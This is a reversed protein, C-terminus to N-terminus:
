QREAIMTRTPAVCIVDLRRGTVNARTADIRAECKGSDDELEIVVIGNVNPIYMSGDFGVPFSREGVTVRTGAPVPTGDERLLRATISASREIALDVAVGGRGYPVVEVRSKTIHADLPVELPDISIANKEYARLGSVAARGSSDTRAVMMNDLYIPVNPLDPVRLIAFNQDIRPLAAFEGGVTGVAGSVQARTGVVGDREAVEAGVLMADGQWELSASSRGEAGHAAVIQYGLDHHRSRNRRLEASAYARGQGDRQFRLESSKSKGMPRTIGAFVSRDSDFLDHTAVVSMFMSGPLQRSYTGSVLRAEQAGDRVVAAASFSGFRRSSWGAHASVDWRDGSRPESGLQAFGAEMWRVDFGASVADGQFEVGLDVLGALGGQYESLATSLRATGLRGLTRAVSAGAASRDRAYEGHLEVTTTDSMGRRWTGDVFAGAYRDDATGYGHRLAGLELSHATLGARLLQPTSFFPQSIRHERGLADRVVATVEGRGSIAPLSHITFPGGAVQHSSSLAGNVFVDVTSPVAADGAISPLPMTLLEPQTDFNTSWQIGGLRFPQAWSSSSSIADGVRLSALRDPFDITLTSDLRLARSGSEDFTAAMDHSLVAPGRFAAAELVASGTSLGSTRTAALDYNLFAGPRTASNVSTGRARASLETAVLSAASAHLSLAAGRQELKWGVPQAGGLASIRYYPRALFETPQMGAPIVIRLRTVTGHDMWLEGDATSMVLLDGVPVDNLMAALWM